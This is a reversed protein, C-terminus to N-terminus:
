AEGAWAPPEIEHAKGMLWLSQLYERPWGQTKLTTGAAYILDERTPDAVEASTHIWVPPPEIQTM